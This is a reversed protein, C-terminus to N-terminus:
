SADEKHFECFHSQDRPDPDCLPCGRNDPLAKAIIRKLEPARWGAPKAIELSMDSLHKARPKVPDGEQWPRKDLNARRVEAWIEDMPLGMYHATGLAVWILDALGDAAGEIDGGDHAMAFELLEEKLFGLRYKFEEENLLRPKRYKAGPNATPLSFKEHFIGVDRFMTTM